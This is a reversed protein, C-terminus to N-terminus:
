ADRTNDLCRTLHTRNQIGLRDYKSQAYTHLPALCRDALVGPREANIGYQARFKDVQDINFQAIARLKEFRNNLGRMIM